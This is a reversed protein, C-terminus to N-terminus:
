KQCTQMGKRERVGANPWGMLPLEGVQEGDGDVDM